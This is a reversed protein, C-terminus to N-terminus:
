RTLAIAKNLYAFEVTIPIYKESYKDWVARRYLFRFGDHDETADPKQGVIVIVEDPTKDKVAKSLEVYDWKKTPKETKVPAVAAAPKETEVPVGVTSVTKTGCGMVAVMVAVLLARM